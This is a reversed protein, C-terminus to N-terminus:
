PAGPARGGAGSEGHASALGQTAAEKERGEPLSAVWAQAATPNRMAWGAAFASTAQLKTQGEPLQAIWRRGAGPDQSGLTSAIPATTVQKLGEPLSAYGNWAFDPDEEVLYAAVGALSSAAEPSPRVTKLWDFTERPSEFGAKSAVLSIISPNAQPDKALHDSAWRMAERPARTSMEDAVAMTAFDKLDPDALTSAWQGVAALDNASWEKVVAALARYRSAEDTLALSRTAATEPDRVAWARYLSEVSQDKTEGNKMALVRAEASVPDQAAWLSIARPILSARGSLGLTDLYAVTAAPDEVAWASVVGQLYAARDVLDGIGAAAAKWDIGNLFDRAGLSELDHERGRRDPNELIRALDMASEENPRPGPAGGGAAGGGGGEGASDGLPSPRDSLAPFSRASLGEDAGSPSMAGEPANTQRKGAWFGLAFLVIGTIVPILLRTPSQRSM